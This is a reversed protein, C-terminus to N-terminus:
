PNWKGTKLDYGSPKRHPTVQIGTDIIAQHATPWDDYTRTIRVEGSVKGDPDPALFDIEIKHNRQWWRQLQERPTNVPSPNEGLAGEVDKEPFYGSVQKRFDDGNSENLSRKIEHYIIQNLQSKTIKM